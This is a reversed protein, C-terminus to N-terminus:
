RARHPGDRAAHPRRPRARAAGAGVEPLDLREHFHASEASEGGAGFSAASTTTAGGPKPGASPPATGPAGTAPTAAPTAAIAIASAAAVVVGRREPEAAGAAVLGGRRRACVAAGVIEVKAVIAAVLGGRRATGSATATTVSHADAYACASRTSAPRQRHSRTSIRRDNTAITGRGTTM